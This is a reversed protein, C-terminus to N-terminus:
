SNRLREEVEELTMNEIEKDSLSGDLGWAKREGEQQIKTMEATIKALRAKRYANDPDTSRGQLAEQRLTAVQVWEKRHRQVVEVKKDAEADIAAAKKIPNDTAVLGAVKEAVKRRLVAEVDSGDGWNERKARGQIAQHSIGFEKALSPFSAGAERKARISQWDDITLRPM